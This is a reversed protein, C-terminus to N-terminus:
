QYEMKKKRWFELGEYKNWVPAPLITKREAWTVKKRVTHLNPTACLIDYNTNSYEVNNFDHEYPEEELFNYLKQLVSEPNKCLHEYEVLQIIDPNASLGEELWKLPKYVTGSKQPDMLAMCRTEVSQVADEDVLSNAYTPNANKIREFSDLIWSIDRVCCIIKSNPFLTKILSTNATWRRSTDFVVNEKKNQYYGDLFGLLAYVRQSNGL